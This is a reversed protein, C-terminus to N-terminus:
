QVDPHDGLGDEGHFPKATHLEQILPGEVGRYIPVKIECVELCKSINIVVQDVEVNGAVATIADINLFKLAVLLAM